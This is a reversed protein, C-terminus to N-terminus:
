TGNELQLINSNVVCIASRSRQRQLALVAAADTLTGVLPALLEAYLGRGADLLLFAGVIPGGSTPDQAQSVRVRLGRNARGTGVLVSGAPAGNAAVTTSLPPRKLHIM